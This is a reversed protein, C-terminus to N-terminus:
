LREVKGKAKHCVSVKTLKVLRHKLSHLSPPDKFWLTIILVVWILLTWSILTLRVLLDDVKSAITISAWTTTRTATTTLARLTLTTTTITLMKRPTRKMKRPTIRQSRPIWASILNSLFYRPTASPNYSARATGLLPSTWSLHIRM